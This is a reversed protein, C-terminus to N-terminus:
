ERLIVPLFARIGYECLEASSALPRSLSGEAPLVAAPEFSM